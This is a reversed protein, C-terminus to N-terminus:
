WKEEWDKLFEKAHSYTAKEDKGIGYTCFYVADGVWMGGSVFSYVYKALPRLLQNNNCRQVRLCEASAYIKFSIDIDGESDSYYELFAHYWSKKARLREIEEGLEKYKRELDRIDKM